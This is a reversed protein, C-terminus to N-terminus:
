YFLLLLLLYILLRSSIAFRPGQIRVLVKKQNHRTSQSYTTTFIEPYFPGVYTIFLGLLHIWSLIWFQDRLATNKFLADDFKLVLLDDFSYLLLTKKDIVSM